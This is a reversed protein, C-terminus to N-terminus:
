PIKPGLDHEQVADLTWWLFLLLSKWVNSRKWRQWPETKSNSAINKVGGCQVRFVTFVFVMPTTELASPFCFFKWGFLCLCVPYNVIGLMALARGGHPVLFAAKQAGKAGESAWFTFLMEAARWVATDKFAGNANQSVWRAFCLLVAFSPTGWSCLNQFMPSNAVFLVRRVAGFM